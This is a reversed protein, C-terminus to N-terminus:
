IGGVAWPSYANGVAWPSYANGVAWPSYANGVAVTGYSFTPFTLADALVSAQARAAAAGLWILVGIANVSATATVNGTGL